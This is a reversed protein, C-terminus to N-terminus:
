GSQMQGVFAAHFALDAADGKGADATKQRLSGAALNRPNPAVSAYKARFVDLPMIVEGRVHADGEWDLSEFHAYARFILEYPDKTGLTSDIVATYKKNALAIYHLQYRAASNPVSVKPSNDIIRNYYNTALDWNEMNEYCKAIQFYTALELDDKPYRYLYQFYSLLAREYFGEDYLFTAFNVLEQRQFSTHNQWEAKVDEPSLYREQANCLCCVIYLLTIIARLNVKM